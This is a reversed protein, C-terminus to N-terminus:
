KWSALLPTIFLSKLSLKHDYLTIARFWIKALSPLHMSPTHTKQQTLIRKTYLVQPLNVLEGYKLLKIIIDTYIFPYINTKFYILDKPIRHRHIMVNDFLMTVGDLPKKYMQANETPFQSVGIAKEEQNVFTCQVGAAVAKENAQLYLYQQNLRDRHTADKANMFAILSGKAQRLCRNLTLAMGYRKVNRSIHLRKDNRAYKKLIKFSADGSFDDIAIIELNTYTQQLLQELCEELYEAANQIPLIVSILPQKNSM